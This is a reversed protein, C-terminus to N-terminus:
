KSCLPAPVEPPNLKQKKIIIQTGSSDVLMTATPKFVPRLFKIGVIDRRKM